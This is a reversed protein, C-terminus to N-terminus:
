RAYGRADLARSVAHGTGTAAEARPPSWRRHLWLWSAPTRRVFAELAANAARTADAAWGARGVGGRRPPVLSALVRLRQRGKGRAEREAAVVLLTAGTRAALTAPARDLLAPAGLFRASVAHRTREPVQDIPMAVVDGRAIAERAAGMAGHPTLLVLGATRRVETCFADFARVRLPKAVIALRRGRVGIFRAAAFAALEWNGTHSAAVVVPGRALAEDIARADHDEIAVADCAADLALRRTRPSARRLWLLEFVGTGLAAYMARAARSADGDTIGARRMAREVGRRRIRLVSGCALGLAAGAVVLWRWPLRAVPVALLALALALLDV